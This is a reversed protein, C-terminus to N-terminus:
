ATTTKISQDSKSQDSKSQGSNSQDFEKLRLLIAIFPYYIVVDSIQGIAEQSFDGLYFAYIASTVGAYILKIKENRCAFYGQIGTRLILFYLVCLMTFGIWGIELAKKLLGSDPPFGALEHGPNFALGEAGTTGLGGGIPHTYIYPQVSKRNVDRVNYSEDKTGKFTARFHEVNPTYIPAYMLFLFIFGAILSLIRSSKRDFTLLIFMVLGAIVMGNATRIGSYSGGLLMLLVGMTLIFKTLARKKGGAVAMYFVSCAAMVMAYACPDSMTSFKRFEGDIFILGYEHPHSMIWDMEFNFLGHWQQICGYLAAICCICFLVIMFRRIRAYSNFLNFSIFLIFLTGLIKRFAQFWGNFSLASPNFLEIAMYCYVLLLMVVAPAKTFANISQRFNVRRVVLSLFTILILIDSFIGAQVGGEFLFRSFFNVFFSYTMLIYLGAETSLLCILAITLALILGTFGIGILLNNAMLWAVGVAFLSFIIYGLWNNM